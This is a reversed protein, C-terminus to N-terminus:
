LNGEKGRQMANQIIEQDKRESCSEDVTDLRNNLEAMSTKIDINHAINRFNKQKM